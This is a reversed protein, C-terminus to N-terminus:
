EMSTQQSPMPAVALDGVMFALPRQDRGGPPRVAPRDTDFVVTNWGPRLTLHVQVASPLAAGAVDVTTGEHGPARVVIRRPGLSELVCTLEAAVDQHGAHHIVVEAKGESWNWQHPPAGEQRYFGRGAVFLPQPSAGPEGQVAPLTYFALTGDTSEFQHVAGLAALREDEPHGGKPLAARDLVIGTFGAARLRTVRHPLPLRDTALHWYDGPRGKM